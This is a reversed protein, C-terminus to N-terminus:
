AGGFRNITDDHVRQKNVDLENEVQQLLYQGKEIYARMEEIHLDLEAQANAHKEMEADIEHNISTIIRDLEVQTKSITPVLDRGSRHILTAAHAIGPALLMESLLQSGLVLRDGVNKLFEDFKGNPSVGDALNQALTALDLSKPAFVNSVTLVYISLSICGLFFLRKYFTREEVQNETLAARGEFALVGSVPILCMVAASWYHGYLMPVADSSSVYTALAHLGMAVGTATGINYLVFKGHQFRSIRAKLPGKDEFVLLDNVDAVAVIRKRKSKLRSHRESYEDVLLQLQYYRPNDRLYDAKLEAAANDKSNPTSVHRRLTRKLKTIISDIKPSIPPPKVSKNM